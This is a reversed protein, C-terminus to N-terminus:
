VLAPEVPHRVLQQRAVVAVVVMGAVRASPMHVAPAVSLIALVAADVAVGDVHRYVELKLFGLTPFGRCSVVGPATGLTGRGSRTASAHTRTSATSADYFLTSPLDGINSICGFGVLM